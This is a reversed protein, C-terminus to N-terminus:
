TEFATVTVNTDTGFLKNDNLSDMVRNVERWYKERFTKTRAASYKSHFKLHIM